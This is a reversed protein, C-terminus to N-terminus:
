LFLPCHSHLLKSSSSDINGFPQFIQHSFLTGPDQLCNTAGPPLSIIPAFYLAYPLLYLNTSWEICVDSAQSNTFGRGSLTWLWLSLRSLIRLSQLMLPHATESAGLASQIPLRLDPLFGPSTATFDGFSFCTPFVLDYNMTYFPGLFLILCYSFFTGVLLM